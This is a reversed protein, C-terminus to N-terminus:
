SEKNKQFKVRPKPKVDKRKETALITQKAIEQDTVRPCNTKIHGIQKCLNCRYNAFKGKGGNLNNAAAKYAQNKRPGTDDTYHVEPKSGRELDNDM